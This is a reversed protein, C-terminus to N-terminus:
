TMKSTFFFFIPQFIEPFITLLWSLIKKKNNVYRYWRFADTRGVVSANIFPKRRKKLSKPLQVTRTDKKEELQHRPVQTTKQKHSISYIYIYICHYLLTSLLLSSFLLSSLLKLTLSCFFIQWYLPSPQKVCSLFPSLVKTPFPNSLFLFASTTKDNNSWWWWWCCCCFILFCCCCCCCCCVSQFSVGARFEDAWERLLLTEGNTFHRGPFDRNKTGQWNPAVNFSITVRLPTKLRKRKKPLPREKTTQQQQNNSRKRKKIKDTTDNSSM